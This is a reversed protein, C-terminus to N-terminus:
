TDESIKLLVSERRALGAATRLILLSFPFFFFFFFLTMPYSANVYSMM